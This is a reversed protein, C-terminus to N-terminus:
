SSSLSHFSFFKRLKNMDAEMKSMRQLMRQGRISDNHYARQIRESHEHVVNKISGLYLLTTAVTFVLLSGKVYGCRM